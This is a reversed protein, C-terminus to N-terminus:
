QSGGQLERRIATEFYRRASRNSGLKGPLCLDILSCKKCGKFEIAPPTLRASYLRHMERCLARTESRLGATLEVIERRRPEWYYIAGQPVAKGTMEELCLAQACLQVRDCDNVKPKGRKYEVPLPSQSAAPESPPQLGSFPNADALWDLDDQQQGGPADELPFEVVDCIGSIGLELSHVQLSRVTRVGHRIERTEEHVREHRERGEATLQNEAWVQELHILAWQRPCFALHQLGSLALLEDESYM